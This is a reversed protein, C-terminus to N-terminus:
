RTPPPMRLKDGAHIPISLRPNMALMRDYSVGFWNAISRLNDGSRITYIWCGPTAPCPTLLAYRDSSPQPTPARTPAVTPSPTPAPTASPTAVPSGTPSPSATSPPTAPPGPTGTGTPAPNPGVAIQSPGPSGIPLDFGGRVLLFGFSAALSAILVLAAVIIAPAIRAPEPEPKPPPMGALVTGRLYRPCNVHGSVLCVLEQQRESQPTAEGIATCRNAPDPAGIAPGHTGDSAETALFPCIRGDGSGTMPIAARFPTAHQPLPEDPGGRAPREVEEL